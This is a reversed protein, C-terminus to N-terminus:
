KVSPATAARASCAMVADYPILFGLMGLGIMVLLLGQRNRIKEIMSM